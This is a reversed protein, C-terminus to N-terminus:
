LIRCDVRTIRIYDHHPCEVDGGRRRREREARKSGSICLVGVIRRPTIMKMRTLTRMRLKRTLLTKVSRVSKTSSAEASAICRDSM